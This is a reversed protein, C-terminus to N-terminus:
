KKSIRETPPAARHRLPRRHLGGAVSRICRAIGRLVQFARDFAADFSGATADYAAKLTDFGRLLAATTSGRAPFRLEM